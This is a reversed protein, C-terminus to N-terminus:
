SKMENPSMMSEPNHHSALTSLNLMESPIDQTESVTVFQVNNYQCCGGIFLDTVLIFNFAVGLMNATILLTNSVTM